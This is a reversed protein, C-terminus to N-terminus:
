KMATELQAVYNKVEPIQKENPQAIKLFQKFCNLAEKYQRMDNYIVGQLYYARAPYPCLSIAKDLTHLADWNNKDNFSTAALNCYIDVDKPNIALARNYNMIAEKVLGDNSFLTAANDFLGADHKDIQWGQNIYNNAALKDNLKYTCIMLLRCIYPTPRWLKVAEELLIRAGAFETNSVKIAGEYVLLNSLVYKAKDNTPNERIIKFLISRASDRQNKAFAKQALFIEYDDHISKRVSEQISDPQNVFYKKEYSRISFLFELTERANLEESGNSSELFDAKDFRSITSHTSIMQALKAEDVVFCSLVEQWKSFGAISLDNKIKEIQSASVFYQNDFRLMKKSAILCIMGAQPDTDGFWISIKPFHKHLTQVVSMVNFLNMRSLSIWQAFLGNSSLHESVQQYFERSFLIPTSNHHALPEASLIIDYINQSSTIFSLENQCYFNLRRKRYSNATHQAISDGLTICSPNSEVVDISNQFHSIVNLPMTSGLGIYLISQPNGQLLLPLLGMRNFLPKFRESTGTLLQDDYRMVAFLPDDYNRARLLTYSAEDTKSEINVDFRSKDIFSYHISSFGAYIFVLVVISPIIFIIKAYLKSGSTSNQWIIIMTCLAAAIATIFYLSLHAIFLTILITGILVGIFSAAPIISSIIRQSENIRPTSIDHFIIGFGISPVLLAIAGILYILAESPLSNQINNFLEGYFYVDWLFLTLLLNLPLILNSIQFVISHKVKQNLVRQFWVGSAIGLLIIAILFVSMDITSTRSRTLFNNWFFFLIFIISSFITFSVVLITSDVFDGKTHKATRPQKVSSSKTSTKRDLGTSTQSTTKSTLSRAFLPFLICVIIYLITLVVSTLGTSLLHYIFIGSALSLVQLSIITHKKDRLFEIRKNHSALFFYLFALSPGETVIIILVRYTFDLVSIRNSIFAFHTTILDMVYFIIPCLVLLIALLFSIGKKSFYKELSKELLSTIIFIMCLAAIFPLFGFPIPDLFIHNLSYFYFLIFGAIIHIIISKISNNLNPKM